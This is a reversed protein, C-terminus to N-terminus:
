IILWHFAKGIDNAGFYKFTSWNANGKESEQLSTNIILDKVIIAIKHSSIFGFQQLEDGATHSNTGGVHSATEKLNFLFKICNNERALKLAEKSYQEAIQFNLRGKVKVDVIKKNPLYDITYEM